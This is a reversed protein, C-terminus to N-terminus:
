KIVKQLFRLADDGCLSFGAANKHGNGGYRRAIESVDFGIVSRMSIKLLGGGSVSYCISFSGSMDALLHGLMSVDVGGADGANVSYIRHGNFSILRTHGLLNQVTKKSQMGLVRAIEEIKKFQNKNGFQKQMQLFTDFDHNIAYLYALLNRERQERAKIKSFSWTDGISVYKILKPIAKKPFFYKYAIMAGSEDNRFVSGPVSLIVDRMCAHHDLIVINRAVAMIKDALSKSPCYDIFYIDKGSLQKVSISNSGSIIKNNSNDKHSLPYYEAKSGFKQWAVFASTFGDLCEGHYFVMTKKKLGRSSLGM